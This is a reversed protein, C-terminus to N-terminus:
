GGRPRLEGPPRNDPPRERRLRTRPRRPRPEAVGPDGVAYPDLVLGRLPEHQGRCLAPLPDRDGHRPRLGAVGGGGAGRRPARPDASGRDGGPDLIGRELSRGLVRARAEPGTGARPSGSAPGAVSRGARPIVRAPPSWRARPPAWAPRHRAPKRARWPAPARCAPRPPTRSAPPGRTTRRRARRRPCRAPARTRRGTRACRPPTRPGAQSGRM